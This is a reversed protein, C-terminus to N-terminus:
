KHRPFHWKGLYYVGVLILIASIAAIIYAGAEICCMQQGNTEASLRACDSPIAALLYWILYSNIIIEGAVAITPITTSSFGMRQLGEDQPASM